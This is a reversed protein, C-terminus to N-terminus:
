RAARTPCDRELVLGGRRDQKRCLLGFRHHREGSVGRARRGSGADITRMPCFAQRMMWVHTAIM